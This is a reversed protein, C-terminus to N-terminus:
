ARAGIRQHVPNADFPHFTCGARQAAGVMIASILTRSAIHRQGAEEAAESQCIGSEAHHMAESRREASTPLRRMALKACCNQRVAHGGVYGRQSSALRLM